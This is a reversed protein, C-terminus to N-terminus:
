QKDSRESISFNKKNLQMIYDIYKKITENLMEIQQDKQKLQQKLKFHEEEFNKM